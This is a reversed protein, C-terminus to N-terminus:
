IKAVTMNQRRYEEDFGKEHMIGHAYGLWLWALHPLPFTAYCKNSFELVKKEECENSTICNLPTKRKNVVIYM